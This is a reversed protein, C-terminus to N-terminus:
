SPLQERELSYRWSSLQSSLQPFKEETINLAEIADNFLGINALMVIKNVYLQFNDPQRTIFSDTIKTIRYIENKDKLESLIEFLKDQNISSAAVVFNYLAQDNTEELRYIREALALHEDNKGLAKKIKMLLDLYFQRNPSIAVANEMFKEAEAFNGLRALTRALAYNTKASHPYEKVEEVFANVTFFMFDRTDGIVKEDDTQVQQLDDIMNSAVSKIQYVGVYNNDLSKKLLELNEAVGEQKALTRQGMDNISFIQMSERLSINASWPLWVATVFLIISVVGALVLSSKAFIENENESYKKPSIFALLLIFLIFSTITDFVFLNQIFYAIILGFIIVKQDRSLFSHKWIFYFAFYLLALYSALAFIGGHVWIDLITNHSSDFFVEQAYMRPDYHNDFVYVYNEQGWGFLPKEKIGEFAIGWNVFRAYGTGEEISIKTIRNLTNNKQVFDTEKFSFLLTPLIIVLALFSVGAVKVKKNKRYSTLFYVMLVLGAIFLGLMAGRTGTFFVGLVNIAVSLVLSIKVGKSYNEFLLYLAFFISFLFIVSLYIPNGLSADIRTNIGTDLLERLGMLFLVLSTGIQIFFLTNWHKKEKIVTSSVLLFIFLFFTTIWGTMREFNSFISDRLSEGLFAAILYFITLFLFSILIGNKTPLFRKDKYVLFGWLLIMLCVISRFVFAKGVVYPFYTNSIFIFPVILTLVALFIISNQIAKTSM